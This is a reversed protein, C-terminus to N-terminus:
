SIAWIMVDEYDATSLLRGDPSFALCAAMTAAEGVLDWTATYRFRIAPDHFGGGTALLAGDPSFSVSDAIDDFTKLAKGDSTRWVTVGGKACGYDDNGTCFTSALLSGEPSLAIRAAQKGKQFSDLLTGEASDWVRIKGDTGASYLRSGDPSFALDLVTQGLVPLEYVPEWGETEYLWIVGNPFEGLGGLALRTGDPSFALSYATGSGALSAITEKSNVNIVYGRYEDEENDVTYAASNGDPAFAADWVTSSAPALNVASEQDPWWVDLLFNGRTRDGSGILLWTSDPAFAVSRTDPHPTQFAKTVLGANGAHIVLRPTPTVTPTSTPTATPTFTPTATETPLPTETPTASPTDTPLATPSPAPLASCAALLLLLLCTCRKM